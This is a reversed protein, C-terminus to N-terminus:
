GAALRRRVGRGWSGPEALAGGPAAAQGALSWERILLVEALALLTSSSLQVPIRIPYTRRKCRGGDAVESAKGRPHHDKAAGTCSQRASREVLGWVLRGLSLHRPLAAGVRCLVVMWAAFTAPVWVVGPLSTTHPQTLAAFRRFWIGTRSELDRPDTQRHHLDVESCSQLRTKRARATRAPPSSAAPDRPSPAHRCPQAVAAPLASPRGRPRGPGPYSREM